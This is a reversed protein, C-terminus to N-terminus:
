IANQRIIKNRETEVSIRRRENAHRKYEDNDMIYFECTNWSWDRFWGIWESFQEPTWLKSETGVAHGDMIDYAFDLESKLKLFEKAQVPNHGFHNSWSNIIAHYYSNTTLSREMKETLDFEACKEILKDLKLQANKAHFENSGDYRM